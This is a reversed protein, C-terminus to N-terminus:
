LHDGRIHRASARSPHDADGLPESSQFDNIHFSALAGSKIIQDHGAYHDDLSLDFVESGSAAAHGSILNNSSFVFHNSDLESGPTLNDRTEHGKTGIFDQFVFQDSKPFHTWV